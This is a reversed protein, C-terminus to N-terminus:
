HLERLAQALLDAEERTNYFVFSARVAEELGLSNIVPQASLNGSRVAIGREDLKKEVEKPKMGQMVFSVVSLRTASDGLLRFGPVGQLKAVAYNTLEKEYRYIEEMGVACWYHLAAGYGIVEAFPPEGAEFRHPIDKPKFGEFTVEDSM